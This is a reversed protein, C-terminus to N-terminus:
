RYMFSGRTKVEFIEKHKSQEEVIISMDYDSAKKNLLYQQADKLEQSVDEVLEQIKCAAAVEELNILEKYMKEYLTKTETEWDVWRELSTKISSKRTNNDVDIRLYKYWSSPIVTPDQPQRGPLLKNYHDIYFLNLEQLSWSECFYHYKHCEAYGPLGLFEYYEVLQSHFMVGEIMHAVIQGFIEEVTM